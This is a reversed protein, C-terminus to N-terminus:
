GAPNNGWLAHFAPVPTMSNAVMSTGGVSSTRAFITRM